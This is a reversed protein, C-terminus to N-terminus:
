VHVVVTGAMYDHLARRRRNTLMVFFEGWVWINLFINVPQYWAPAMEVFKLNRSQFGLSLYEADTMNLTSMLLAISLLTSFIFIVSYRILAERYGVSSGNLTVIRIKCILKGPTGGKQKVLFINFWLGILLGPLFSYLSFIRSKESLWLTPMVFIMMILIDLLHAGVRRWFTAYILSDGHKDDPQNAVPTASSVDTM